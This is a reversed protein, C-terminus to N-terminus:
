FIYAPSKQHSWTRFGLRLWPMVSPSPRLARRSIMASADAESLDAIVGRARCGRKDVLRQTWEVM